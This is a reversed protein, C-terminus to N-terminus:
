DAFVLLGEDFQEVAVLDELVEFYGVVEAPLDFADQPGEAAIEAVDQQVEVVLVVAVLLQLEGVVLVEVFVLQAVVLQGLLVMLVGVVVDLQGLL